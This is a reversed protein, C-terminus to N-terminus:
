AKTGRQGLLTKLRARLKKLEHLRGPNSPKGTNKAVGQERRVEADTESLKDRLATADMSKLDTKKIIAM